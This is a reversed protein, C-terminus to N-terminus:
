IAVTTMWAKVKAQVSSREDTAIARPRSVDIAAASPLADFCRSIASYATSVNASLRYLFPLPFLEFPRTMARRVVFPILM